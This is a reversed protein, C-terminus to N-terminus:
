QQPVVRDSVLLEASTSLGARRTSLDTLTVTYWPKRNTTDKNNIYGVGHTM